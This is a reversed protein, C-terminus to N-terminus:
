NQTQSQALIRTLPAVDKVRRLRDNPSGIGRALLRRVQSLVAQRDKESFNVSRPEIVQVIHEKLCQALEEAPRDSLEDCSLCSVQGPLDQASNSGSQALWKAEHGCSESALRRLPYRSVTVACEYRYQIRRLGDDRTRESLPLKLRLQAFLGKTKNESAQNFQQITAQCLQRQNRGGDTWETWLSNRSVVTGFANVDPGNDPQACVKYPQYVWITSCYPEARAPISQFFFLLTFSFALAPVVYM